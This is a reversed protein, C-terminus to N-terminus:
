IYMGESRGEGQGKAEGGAVYSFSRKEYFYESM